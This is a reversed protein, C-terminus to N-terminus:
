PECGGGLIESPGSLSANFLVVLNVQEFLVECTLFRFIHTFLDVGLSKHDEFIGVLNLAGYSLNSPLHISLLM